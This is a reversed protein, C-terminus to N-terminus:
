ATKRRRKKAASSAAEVAEVQPPNEQEYMEGAMELVESFDVQHVDAWHQLNCILAAAQETKSERQEPLRKQHQELAAEAWKARVKNFPNGAM